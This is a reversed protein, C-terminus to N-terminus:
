TTKEKILGCFNIKPSGFLNGGEPTYRKRQIKLRKPLRLRIKLGKTLIENKLKNGTM